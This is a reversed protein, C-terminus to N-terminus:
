ESDEGVDMTRNIKYNGYNEIFRAAMAGTQIAEELLESMPKGEYTVRHAARVLEGAEEAVIGAAHIPDTPFNPFKNKAAKLENKMLKWKKLPIEIVKDRSEPHYWLCISSVRCNFPCVTNCEDTNYTGCIRNFMEEDIDRLRIKVKGTEKKDEFTVDLMRAAEKFTWGMM